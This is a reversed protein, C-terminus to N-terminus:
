GHKLTCHCSVADPWNQNMSGDVEWWLTAQAFWSNGGNISIIEWEYNLPDSFFEWLTSQYTLGNDNCVDCIDDEYCKTRYYGGFTPLFEGTSTPDFRFSSITFSQGNGNVSFGSDGKEFETYQRGCDATTCSYSFSLHVYDYDLDSRNDTINNPHAMNLPHNRVSCQNNPLDSPNWWAGNQIFISYSPDGEPCTGDKCGYFFYSFTIAWLLPLFHICNKKM